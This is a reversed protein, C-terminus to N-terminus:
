IMEQPECKSVSIMGHIEFDLKNLTITLMVFVEFRIESLQKQQIDASHQAWSRTTYSTQNLSIVIKEETYMKLMTVNGYGGFIMLGNDGDYM